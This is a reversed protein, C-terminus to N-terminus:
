YVYPYLSLNKIYIPIQVIEVCIQTIIRQYAMHLQGVTVAELFHLDVINLQGLKGISLPWLRQELLM